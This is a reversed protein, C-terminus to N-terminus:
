AGRRESAAKSPMPESISKSAPNIIRWEKGNWPHQPLGDKNPKIPEITEGFLANLEDEPVDREGQEFLEGDNSLRWRGNMCFPKGDVFVVREDDVHGEESECLECRRTM